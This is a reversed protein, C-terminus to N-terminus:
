PRKGGPALLMPLKVPQGLFDYINQMHRGSPLQFGFQEIETALRGSNTAEIGVFWVGPPLGGIGSTAKVSVQRGSRRWSVIQWGLAAGSVALALLAICLTLIVPGTWLPQPTKDVPAANWALAM